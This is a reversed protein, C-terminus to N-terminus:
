GEADTGGEEVPIGDDVEVVPETKDREQNACEPCLGNIGVARVFLAGCTCEELQYVGFVVSARDLDQAVIDRLARLRGLERARAVVFDDGFSDNTVAEDDILRGILRRIQEVDGQRVARWWIVDVGKPDRRAAMAM